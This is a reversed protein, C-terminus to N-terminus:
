AIYIILGTFILTFTFGEMHWLVKLPSFDHGEVTEKRKSSKAISVGKHNRKKKKRSTGDDIQEFNELLNERERKGTEGPCHSIM